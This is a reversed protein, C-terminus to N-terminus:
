PNEKVWQAVFDLMESELTLFKETLEVAPSFLALYGYNGNDPTDAKKAVYLFLRKPGNLSKIIVGSRSELRPAKSWRDKYKAALANLDGLRYIPSVEPITRRNLAAVVKKALVKLCSESDWEEDAEYSRYYVQSSDILAIVPDRSKGTLKFKLIVRETSGALKGRKKALLKAHARLSFGYTSDYRLETDVHDADNAIFQQVTLLAQKVRHVYEAKDLVELLKM